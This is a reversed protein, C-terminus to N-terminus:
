LYYSCFILSCRSCVNLAGGNDKIFKRFRRFGQGNWIQGLDESGVNGMAGSFCRYAVIVKGDPLIHMHRWPYYCREYARMFKHPELYFRDIDSTKIHPAFEIRRHKYKREIHSIQQKLAATDVRAPDTQFVGTATFNFDRNLLRQRSAMDQTVFQLHNFHFYDIDKDKFHEVLEVLHAANYESICCNVGLFPPKGTGSAAKKLSITKDIGRCTKEFSGPVVRIFDNIGAPGDLSVNIRYVGSDLLQGAKEELLIGNTTVHTRLGRRAAYAIAEALDDYLLPETAMFWLDYTRGAAQDVIRKLLPLKMPPKGKIYDYSFSGEPRTGFDCMRCKANCDANVILVITSPYFAGAPNLWYGYRVLLPKIRAGLEMKLQGPSSLAESLRNLFFDKRTKM